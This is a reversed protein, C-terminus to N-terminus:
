IFDVKKIEGSTVDPFYSSNSKNTGVIGAGVNRRLTPTM